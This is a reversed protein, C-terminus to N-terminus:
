ELRRRLLNTSTLASGGGGRWRGSDPRTVATGKAGSGVLTGGRSGGRGEERMGRPIADDAVMRGRGEKGAGHQVVGRVPTGAHPSATDGLCPM